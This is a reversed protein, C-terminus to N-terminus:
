MTLHSIAVIEGLEEKRKTPRRDSRLPRRHIPSSDAIFRPLIKNVWSGLLVIRPLQGGSIAVQCIGWGKHTNM